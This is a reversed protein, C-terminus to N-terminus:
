LCSWVSSAFEGLSPDRAGMLLITANDTLHPKISEVLQNRDEVFFANIGLNKLDEIL